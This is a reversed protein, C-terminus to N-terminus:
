LNLIEYIKSRISPKRTDEDCDIDLEDAILLLQKKSLVKLKYKRDYLQVLLDPIHRCVVEEEIVDRVGYIEQYARIDAVSWFDNGKTGVGGIFWRDPLEYLMVSEGDYGHFADVVSADYISIINHDVEAKSWNNPPLALEAYIVEKNLVFTRSGHQHEHLFGIAHGWEHRMVGGTPDVWGINLTLQRKDIRRAGTGIYSWSGIGQVNGIRIDSIDRDFVVEVDLSVQSTFEDIVDKFDDIFDLDDTDFYVKVPKRSDWYSFKQGLAKSTKGSNKVYCFKIPDFQSKSQLSYLSILGFLLYKLFKPMM